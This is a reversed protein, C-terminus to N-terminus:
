QIGEQVTQHEGIMPWFNQVRLQQQHNRRRQLTLLLVLSGQLVQQSTRNKFMIQKDEVVETGM